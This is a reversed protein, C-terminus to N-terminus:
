IGNAALQIKRYILIDRKQKELSEKAELKGYIEEYNNSVAKTKYLDFMDQDESYILSVPEIEGKRTLNVLHYSPTTKKDVKVYKVAIYATSERKKTFCSEESFYLDENFRRKVIGLGSERGVKELAKLQFYSGHFPILHTKTKSNNLIFQFLKKKDDKKAHGSIYIDNLYTVEKFRTSQDRTAYIKPSAIHLLDEILREYECENGPICAQMLAVVDESCLNIKDDRGLSMLNMRSFSENQSGSVFWAQERKELSQIEKTEKGTMDKNCLYIPISFTDEKILKSELLIEYFSILRKGSLIVAKKGSKEAANVFNFLAEMNSSIVSGIIRKSKNEEFLRLIGSRIEEEPVGTSSLGARTADDILYDVGKEKCLTKLRNFDFSHGLQIKSLKYDGMHLFNGAETEILFASAEPISHSVAIPHVKFDESVEVVSEKDFFKVSIEEFLDRVAPEIGESIAKYTFKNVHLVPLKLDNKDGFTAEERLKKILFLYDSIAGIHDLHGHTIFLDDIKGLYPILDPMVRNYETSIDDVFMSGLDVLVNLNKNNKKVTFLTSNAGIKTPNCGGLFSVKVSPTNM